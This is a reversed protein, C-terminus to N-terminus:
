EGEVEFEEFEDENELATLDNQHQQEDMSIFRCILLVISEGLLLDQGCTYGWSPMSVFVYSGYEICTLVQPNGPVHM